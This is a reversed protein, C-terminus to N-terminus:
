LAIGGQRPRVREPLRSEELALAEDDTAADALNALPTGLGLAMFTTAYIGMGVRPDGKEVALYTAKSVGTREMM